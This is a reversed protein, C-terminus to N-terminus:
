LYVLYSDVITFLKNSSVKPQNTEYEEAPLRLLERETLTRGCTPCCLPAASTFDLADDLAAHCRPCHFM